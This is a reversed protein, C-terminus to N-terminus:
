GSNILVESTLPGFDRYYNLRIEGVNKFGIQAFFLSSPTNPIPASLVDALIPSATNQLVEKMLMRGLGRRHAGRRIVIQYLYVYRALDLTESTLFQGQGAATFQGTFEDISTTLAFGLLSHGAHILFFTSGGAFIDHVEEEAFETVLFGDQANATSPTARWDHQISCIGSVASPPLLRGTARSCVEVSLQGSGAIDKTEM